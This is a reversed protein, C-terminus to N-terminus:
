GLVEIAQQLNTPIKLVEGDRIHAETPKNNFRAIIYWYQHDGYQQQSLKFMRQGAVYYHETYTISDLIKQSPNKFKPTTYQEIIEVGRKEFIEDNRLTDNTAIKRKRYRSM